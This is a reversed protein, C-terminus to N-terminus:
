EEEVSMSTVSIWAAEMKAWSKPVNMEVQKSDCLEMFRLKAEEFSAFKEKFEIPKIVKAKIGLKRRLSVRVHEIIVGVDENQDIDGVESDDKNMNNAYDALTQKTKFKKLLQTDSLELLNQLPNIKAARQLTKSEAAVAKKQSKKKYDEATYNISKGGSV